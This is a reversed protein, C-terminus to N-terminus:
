NNKVQSSNLVAYLESTGVGFENAIQRMNMPSLGNGYNISKAYDKFESLTVNTKALIDDLKENGTEASDKANAFAQRAQAVSMGLNDAATQWEDSTWGKGYNNSKAFEAIDITSNDKASSKGSSGSTGKLTKAINANFYQANKNAFNRLTDASFRNGLIEVFSDDYVGANLLNLAVGAADGNQSARSIALLTNESTGLKSAIDKVNTEDILGGQLFAMYNSFKTQQENLDFQRENLAMQRENLKNAYEQQQINRYNNAANQQMQANTMDASYKANARNLENGALNQQLALDVDTKSKMAQAAMSNRNTAYNQALQVRSTESLGGTIGSARMSQSINKQQMQNTLYAQREWEKKQRDIDAKQADAQSKYAEAIGTYANDLGQAARKADGLGEYGPLANYQSGDNGGSYGYSKRLDEARDHASQMATKDGAEKAASWERKYTELLQRDLESLERQDHVSTAM